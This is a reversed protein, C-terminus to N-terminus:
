PPLIPPFDGKMTNGEWFEETEDAQNTVPHSHLGQDKRDGTALEVKRGDSDDDTQRDIM